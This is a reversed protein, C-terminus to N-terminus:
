KKNDRLTSDTSEVNNGKISVVSVLENAIHKHTHTHTHTRCSVGGEGKWAIWIHEIRRIQNFAENTGMMWM